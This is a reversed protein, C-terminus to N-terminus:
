LPPPVSHVPFGSLRQEGDPQNDSAARQEHEAGRQVLLHVLRGLLRRFRLARLARRRHKRRSRLQCRLWRRHGARQDDEIGAVLRLPIVCRLRDARTRLLRLRPNRVAGLTDHGPDRFILEVERHRQHQPLFQLRAAVADDQRALRVLDGKGVGPPCQHGVLQLRVREDADVGIGRLIGRHAAHHGDTRRRLVRIGAREVWGAARQGFHQQSAEAVRDAALFPPAREPLGVRHAAEIVAQDRGADHLHAIHGIGLLIQQQRVVRVPM